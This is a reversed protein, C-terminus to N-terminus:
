PRQRGGSLGQLRTAVDAIVSNWDLPAPQRFVRATPYWPSDTRGLGWRFDPWYTVLVWLPRALAGALHAVSTDVSIVLDMAEVLAATDAFDDLAGDHQHIGPHAALVTLDASRLDKQVVHFECDLGFLAEFAALPLSRRHDNGHAPNGSWALGVRLRGPHAGLRAQWRQRHAEPVALYPVAAPVTDVTTGLALPLSLLHCYEDFAPYPPGEALLETEGATGAVLARLTAPTEVLVRGAMSALLPIFRWFQLTDGMGQEDLVLLTKGALSSGGLWPARAELGRARRRAVEAPEKQREEYDAWGEPYRGLAMRLLGLHLRPGHRFHEPTREIADLYHAEADGYRGLDCLALGLHLDVEPNAYGLDLCHRLAALAEDNRGLERLAAGRGYHAEGRTPALAIARDLAALALAPQRLELLSRGSGVLAEVLGPKLALAKTYAQCAEVHRKQRHLINGLDCHGEAHAPNLTLARVGSNFAEELRDLKRLVVGRNFHFLSVEPALVIAREYHRLAEELQGEDHCANGVRYWANPFDPRCAIAQEFSRRSDAPQGLRRQAIGLQYHAEGMRPRSKVLQALVGAAAEVQGAALLETAHQLERQSPSRAAGAKPTKMVGLWPARQM